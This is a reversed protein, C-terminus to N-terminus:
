RALGRCGADSGPRRSARPPPSRRREADWGRSSSPPPCRHFCQLVRDLLYHTSDVEGGLLALAGHAVDEGPLGGPGLDAGEQGPQPQLALHAALHKAARPGHAGAGSGHPRVPGVHHVGAAGAAVHGAGEVDGGHGGKHHGPRAHRHGLVAVPADGAAAAAGVQQFGQAHVEGEGPSPPWWCSAPPESERRAGVGVGPGVGDTGARGPSGGWREWGRGWVLGAAHLGPMPTKSGTGAPGRAAPPPTPRGGRGPPARGAAELTTGWRAWGRRRAARRCTVVKRLVGCRPGSAGLALVQEARGPRWAARARRM